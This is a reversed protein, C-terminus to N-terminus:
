SGQPPRGLREGPFSGLTCFDFGTAAGLSAIALVASPRLLWGAAFPEEAEVRIAFTCSAGSRVLATIEDRRPLLLELLRDLHEGVDPSDTVARSDLYWGGDPWVYRGEGCGARGLDGVAHAWTPRVGLRETVRAPDLDPSSLQFDVSAQRTGSDSRGVFDGPAPREDKKM